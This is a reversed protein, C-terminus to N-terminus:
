STSKSLFRQSKLGPSASIGSMGSRITIPAGSQTRVAGLRAQMGYFFVFTPSGSHGPLSRMDALFSEQNDITIPRSKALTGFRVITENDTDGPHGLYRSVMFLEDGHQLPIQGMLEATMFSNVSATSTREDFSADLGLFCATVDSGGPHAIWQGATLDVTKPGERTNYRVVRSERAVHVNTVVYAHYLGPNGTFPSVSERGLDGRPADLGPALRAAHHEVREAADAGGANGGEGESPAEGADLEARRKGSKGGFPQPMGSLVLWVAILAAASSRRPV